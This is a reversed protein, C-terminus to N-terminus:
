FSGVRLPLTHSPPPSTGSQPPELYQLDPSPILTFIFISSPLLLLSPLGSTIFPRRSPPNNPHDMPIPLRPTHSIQAPRLVPLLPSSPVQPFLTSFCIPLSQCAPFRLSPVNQPSHRPLPRPVQVGARSAGAQSREWAKDKAAKDEEEM